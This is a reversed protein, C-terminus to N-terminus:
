EWSCPDTIKTGFTNTALIFGKKTKWKKKTKYGNKWHPSILMKNDTATYDL